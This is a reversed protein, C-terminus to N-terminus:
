EGISWIADYGMAVEKERLDAIGTKLAGRIAEFSCVRLLEEKSAKVKATNFPEGTSRVVYGDLYTGQKDGRSEDRGSIAIHFTPVLIVNGAANQAIGLNLNMAVLGDLDGAAKMMNVTPNDTTINSSTSGLIEGITKPSSRKTGKYSLKVGERENANEASFLTAYQPTGTVNEVPVFDIGYETKFFTTVEKYIAEMVYEWHSDPLQPFELTTTTTTTSTYTMGGSTWSSSSTETEQHFTTASMTFSTLGFKSAKSFPIGTNANPKYFSYSLKKDPSRYRVTLSAMVGTEQKGKVIVPFAAYSKASIEAAALDGYNSVSRLADGTVKRERELILFNEGKNFQGANLQGAIEPNALAEKPIKVTVEGVEKTTFDAFHNLARAGMVDTILSVRVDTGESGPPNYYKITIDEALDIFPLSSEGNVELIEIGAVPDLSFNAVDGLTTTLELPVSGSLPYGYRRAYTGLGIYDLVDGQAKMTGQVEYMGVGENKMFSVSVFYDGERSGKPFYKSESTGIEPPYVGCIYNIKAVVGDLQDTKATMLNGTINGLREGISMKPKKEAPASGDETKEGGIKLKDKLQATVQTVSTLVLILFLLKKM